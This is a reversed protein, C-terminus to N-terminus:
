EREPWKESFLNRSVEQMKPSRELQEHRKFVLPFLLVSVFVFIADAVRLFGSYSRHKGNVALPLYWSLGRSSLEAHIFKSDMGKPYNAEHGNSVEFDLDVLSSRWLYRNIFAQVLVGPYWWSLKDYRSVYPNKQFFDAFIRAEIM